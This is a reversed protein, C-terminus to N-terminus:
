ARRRRATAALGLLAVAALGLSAPEPVEVTVTISGSRWVGDSGQNDKFYEFFEFSLDGNSNTFFDAANAVLDASGAFAASGSNVDGPSPNLAFGTGAGDSIAVAMDGLLSPFDAGIEVDWSVGVVHAFEGFSHSRVENSLSGLVDNSFIGGSLDLVYQKLIGAQATSSALAAAALAFGAAFKKFTHFRM